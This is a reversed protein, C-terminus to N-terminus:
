KDHHKNYYDPYLEKVCKPCISHSFVAESHESIYSELHNWTGDEDRIQKCSACIPLLGSLMKVENLADKLEHQKIRLSHILAIVLERLQRVRDEGIVDQYIECETCFGFKETFKGRVKGGCMTGAILWCRGCENRYAPCDAEDCRKKTYCTSEVKNVTEDIWERLSSEDEQFSLELFVQLDNILGDLEKTDIGDDSM